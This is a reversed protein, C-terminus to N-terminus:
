WRRVTYGEGLREYSPSDGSFDIVYGTGQSPLYDFYDSGDGAGFLRSMLLATVAGHCVVIADRGTAALAMAAAHAREIVMRKSEGNPCPTDWSESRAWDLYSEDLMLEEYPRQEFDGFDMEKLAACVEHPLDGFIVRFTQETRKMGSTYLAKGEASPYIGSAKLEELAAYGEPALEVDWVGAYRRAVNATSIGHRILYLKM